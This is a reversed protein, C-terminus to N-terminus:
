NSHSRFVTIGLQLSSTHIHVTTVGNHSIGSSYYVNKETIKKGITGKYYLHM